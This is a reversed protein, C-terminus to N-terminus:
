GGCGLVVSSAAATYYHQPNHRYNTHFHKWFKWLFIASCHCCLIRPLLCHLSNEDSYFSTTFFFLRFLLAFLTVLCIKEIINKWECSSIVCNNFHLASFSNRMTKCAHKGYEKSLKKDIKESKGGNGCGVYSFVKIKDNKEQLM